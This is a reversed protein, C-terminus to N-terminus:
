AVREWAIRRGRAILRRAEDEDVNMFSAISSVREGLPLRARIEAERAESVITM